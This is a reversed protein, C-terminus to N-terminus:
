LSAIARPAPRPWRRMRSLRTDWGGAGGCPDGFGTGSRFWNRVWHNISSRSVCATVDMLIERGGFARFLKDTTMPRYNVPFDPLLAVSPQFTVVSFNDHPTLHHSYDRLSSPPPGNDVRLLRLWFQRGPQFRCSGALQLRCGRGPRNEELEAITLM